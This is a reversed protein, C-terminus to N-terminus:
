LQKLMECDGKLAKKRRRSAKRTPTEDSDVAHKHQEVMACMQARTLRPNVFAARLLYDKIRAVEAEASAPLHLIKRIRLAKVPLRYGFMATGEALLAKSRAMIAPVQEPM